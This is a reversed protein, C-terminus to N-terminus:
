TYNSVEASMMVMIRATQSRSPGAGARVKAEIRGVADHEPGLPRSKQHRYGRDDHGDVGQEEFAFLVIEIFRPRTPTALCGQLCLHPENRSTADHHELFSWLNLLLSSILM